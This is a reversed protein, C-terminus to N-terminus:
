WFDIPFEAMKNDHWAILAGIGIGSLPALGYSFANSATDATKTGSWRLSNRIAADFGNLSDRGDSDRDCWRCTKPAINPALLELTLSMVIGSATVTLDLPLDYRLEATPMESVPHSPNLTTADAPPAVEAYSIASFLMSAVCINLTTIKLTMVVAGVYGSIHAICTSTCDNSSAAAVTTSNGAFKRRCGHAFWGLPVFQSEKQAMSPYCGM